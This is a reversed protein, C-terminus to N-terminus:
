RTQQWGCHRMDPVLKLHPRPFSKCKGKPSFAEPLWLLFTYQPVITEVYMRGLTKMKRWHKKGGKFVDNGTAWSGVRAWCMWVDNGLSGKHNENLRLKEYLMYWIFIYGWIKWNRTKKQIKERWFLFSAEGFPYPKCSPKSHSRLLLLKVKANPDFTGSSPFKSVAGPQHTQHQALFDVAFQKNAEFFIHFSAM